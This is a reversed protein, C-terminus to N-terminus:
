RYDKLDHRILDVTSQNYGLRNDKCWKELADTNILEFDLVLDSSLINQKDWKVYEVEVIKPHEKVPLQSRIQDLTPNGLDFTNWHLKIVRNHLWTRDNVRISLVKVPEIDNFDFGAQRHCSTIPNFKFKNWCAIKDELSLSYFDPFKFDGWSSQTLKERWDPAVGTFM